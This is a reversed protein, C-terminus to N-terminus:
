FYFLFFPIFIQAILFYKITPFLFTIISICYCLFIGTTTFKRTLWVGSTSVLPFGSLHLLIARRGFLKELISLQINFVVILYWWDSIAPPIKTSSKKM